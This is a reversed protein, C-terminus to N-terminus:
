PPWRCGNEMCKGRQQKCNNFNVIAVTVAVIYVDCRARSPSRTTATVDAKSAVLAKVVSLHGNKSALHLPTRGVSNFLFHALPPSLPTFITLQTRQPV